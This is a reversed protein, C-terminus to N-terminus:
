EAVLEDLKARVDEVKVEHDPQSWLTTGASDRIVMGHNKFGLDQCIKVNEDTTADLNTAVVKDGYQENMESVALQV